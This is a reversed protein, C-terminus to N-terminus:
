WGIGSGGRGRLRPRGTVSSTTATRAAATPAPPTRASRLPPELGPVAAGPAAAELGAVDGVTLGAEEPVGEDALVGLVLTLPIGTGGPPAAGAAAAPFSSVCDTVSMTWGPMTSM